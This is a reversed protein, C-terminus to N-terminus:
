IYVSAKRTREIYARMKMSFKEHEVSGRLFLFISFYSVKVGFASPEKNEAYKMNSVILEIDGRSGYYDVFLEYLHERLPMIVLQHMVGELIQDLNLFEDSKLAARAKEVETGFDKEGHKVLYNKMGNMFQRINRMVKQPIKEKSERTCAIFNHINKAFISSDDQALSLTYSEVGEGPDQHEAKNRPHETVLIIKCSMLIKIFKKEKEV